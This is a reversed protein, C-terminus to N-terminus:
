FDTVTFYWDADDIFLTSDGNLRVYIQATFSNTSQATVQMSSQFVSPDNVSLQIIYDDTSRATDLTVTYNGTSNRVVSAGQVRLETGDGAVKGMAKIPNELFAGGDSGISIDNNADTSVIVVGGSTNGNNNIQQWDTGDSKIWLISENTITTQNTGTLDVYTSITRDSNTSNKILYM